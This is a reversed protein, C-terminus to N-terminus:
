RSFFSDMRGQRLNSRQLRRVRSQEEYLLSKLSSLPGSQVLNAETMIYSLENSLVELAGRYRALSPKRGARDKVPVTSRGDERDSDANFQDQEISNFEGFDGFVIDIAQGFASEESISEAMPLSGETAMLRDVSEMDINGVVGNLHLETVEDMLMTMDEQEVTCCVDPCNDSMGAECSLEALVYLEGRCHVMEGEKECQERAHRSAFAVPARIAAKVYGQRENKRTIITEILLPLLTDTKIWSNWIVSEPVLDWARVILLVCDYVTCAERINSPQRVSTEKLLQEEITDLIHRM